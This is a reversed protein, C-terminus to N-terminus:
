VDGAESDPGTLRMFVDTLNAEVHAFSDVDYGGQVLDRLLLHNAFGEEVVVELGQEVADVRTVGGREEIREQASRLTGDDAAVIEIRIRRGGKVRRMVKAKPGVEVMRGQDIVGVWTCLEEVEPIIHSSILITKGM